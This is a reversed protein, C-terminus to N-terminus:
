LISEGPASVPMKATESSAFMACRKILKTSRSHSAAMFFRYAASRGCRRVLTYRDCRSITGECELVLSDGAGLRLEERIKKPIVVRGAKDITM